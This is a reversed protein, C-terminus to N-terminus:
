RILTKGTAMNDFRDYSRVVVVHEVTARAVPAKGKAPPDTESEPLPIRFDYSETKDDSIQNIPEVYQWDGADM